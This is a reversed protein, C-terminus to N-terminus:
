SSVQSVAAEAARVLREAASVADRADAASVPASDYEAKTKMAVLRGLQTGPRRLDAAISGLHAAAESHQGRWVSRTRAASIADAANFGAHIANGTAASRNGLALSDNAARLFENAKVLYARAEEPGAARTTPMDPLRWGLFRKM